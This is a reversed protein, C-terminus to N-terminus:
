RHKQIKIVDQEMDRARHAPIGVMHDDEVVLQARDRRLDEAITKFLADMDSKIVEVGGDVTDRRPHDARAIHLLRKKQRRELRRLRQAFALM